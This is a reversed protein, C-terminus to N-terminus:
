HRASATHSKRPAVRHARHTVPRAKERPAADAEAPASQVSAFSQRLAELKDNLAAVQDSSKRTEARQATVQQQLVQLQDIAEQQSFELAKVTEVLQDLAPNKVFQDLVPTKAPQAAAVKAVPAAVPDALTRWVLGAALLLLAAVAGAILRTNPPRRALLPHRDPPCQAADMMQTWMSGGAM